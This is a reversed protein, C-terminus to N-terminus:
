PAVRRSRLVAMVFQAADHLTVGVATLLEVARGVCRSAVCKARLVAIKFATTM